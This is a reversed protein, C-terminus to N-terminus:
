HDRRVIFQALETLRTASAGFPAVSAVADELLEAAFAKAQTLGMLSVYTPKNANLDKGATKGLKETNSECDLVDDVV